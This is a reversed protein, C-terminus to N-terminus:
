DEEIRVALVTGGLGAEAEAKALKRKQEDQSLPERTTQDYLFCTVPPGGSAKHSPWDDPSVGVYRKCGPGGSQQEAEALTKFSVYMADNAGGGTQKELRELRRELKDSM